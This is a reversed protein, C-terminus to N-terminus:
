RYSNSIRDLTNWGQQQSSSCFNASIQSSNKYNKFNNGILSEDITIVFCRKAMLQTSDPGGRGGGRENPSRNECTSSKYGRPFM